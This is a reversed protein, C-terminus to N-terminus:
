GPVAVGGLGKINLATWKHNWYGRPLTETPIRMVLPFRREIERTGSVAADYLKADTERLVRMTERVGRELLGLRAIKDRRRQQQFLLWARMITEHRIQDQPNLRIGRLPKQSFLIRRGLTVRSDTTNLNMGQLFPNNSMTPASKKKAQNKSWSKGKSAGKDDAYTRQHPIIVVQIPKLISKPLLRSINM